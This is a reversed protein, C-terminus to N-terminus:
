TVIVPMAMEVQACRPCESIEASGAICFYQLPTTGVPAEAESVPAQGGMAVGSTASM